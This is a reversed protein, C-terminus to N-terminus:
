RADGAASSAEFLASWIKCGASFQFPPATIQMLDTLRRNLALMAQDTKDKQVKGGERLVALLAVGAANPRGDADALGLTRLDYEKRLVGEREAEEMRGRDEEEPSSTFTVFTELTSVAVAIDGAETESISVDDWCVGQPTPFRVGEETAIRFRTEYRRTKRPPKFPSGPIQLLRALVQGLKSVNQKLNVRQAQDLEPCAFSLIGGHLAFVRLLQWLRNPINGRRQEEFGAEVFTLTRRRGKVEICIRQEAVTLRVEEWTAGPPPSFLVTQPPPRKKRKGACAALLNMDVVLHDDDWSLLASLPLIRPADGQWVDAPPM